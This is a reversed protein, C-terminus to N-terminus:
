MQLCCFHILSIVAFDTAIITKTTNSLVAATHRCSLGPAVAYHLRSAILRANIATREYIRCQTSRDMKMFLLNCSMMFSLVISFSPSFKRHGRTAGPAIIDSEATPWIENIKAFHLLWNLSTLRCLFDGSCILSIAVFGNALLNSLCTSDKQSQQLYLRVTCRLAYCLLRGITVFTAHDSHEYRAHAKCFSVFRRSIM